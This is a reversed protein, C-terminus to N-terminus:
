TVSKGYNRYNVSDWIKLPSPSRFLSIDSKGYNGYNRSNRFDLHRPSRCWSCRKVCVRQDFKTFLSLHPHLIQLIHHPFYRCVYWIKFSYYIRMKTRFPTSLPQHKTVYPNDM